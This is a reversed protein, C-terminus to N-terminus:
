IPTPEWLYFGIEQMLTYLSIRTYYMVKAASSRRNSYSNCEFPRLARTSSVWKVHLVRLKQWGLSAAKLWNASRIVDFFLENLPFSCVLAVPDEPERCEDGDDKTANSRDGSRNRDVTQVVDGFM